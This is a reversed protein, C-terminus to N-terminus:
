FATERGLERAELFEVLVDLGGVAVVEFDNPKGAILKAPLIGAAVVLDLLKALQVIPNAKRHKPFDIYTKLARDKEGGAKWGAM